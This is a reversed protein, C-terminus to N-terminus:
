RKAETVQPNYGFHRNRKLHSITDHPPSSGGHPFTDVHGESVSELFAGKHAMRRGTEGGRCNPSPSLNSSGVLRNRISPEVLQALGAFLNRPIRRNTVVLQEDSPKSSEPSCAKEFVLIGWLFIGAPVNSNLTTKLDFYSLEVGHRSFNFSSARPM